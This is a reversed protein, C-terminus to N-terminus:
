QRMRSPPQGHHRKFAQSFATESAYGVRAAIQAISQDTHALQWAALRMRHETLYSLPPQGLVQAFRDAFASRSLHAIDALEPVSWDKEPSRHMAALAGSLAKDRLALLWNGTGEPLAAVHDRLAEVLLIDAVRNLIVQQGPGTKATEDAIFQLHMIEPLAAILPRAMNVDFRFHGSILAAAEGDGGHQLPQPQVHSLEPMLEHPVRAAAADDQVRHEIGAPLIVIDGTQLKLAEAGHRLLWVTGGTVIHFSTLGPTHLRLAWPARLRSERFVAGHLRIDDLILSLTDMATNHRKAHSERRKACGSANHAAPAANSAHDHRAGPCIM